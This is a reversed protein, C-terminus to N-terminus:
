SKNTDSTSIKNKIFEYAMMASVADTVARHPEGIPQLGLRELTRKLGIKYDWPLDFFHHAVDMVDDGWQYKNFSWPPKELFPRDFPINYSHLVVNGLSDLLDRAMRSVEKDSLAQEIEDETIQSTSLAGSARGNAYYRKGPNCLWGIKEIEGNLRYAMGFEVIADDRPPDAVHGFGTTETDVFVHVEAM